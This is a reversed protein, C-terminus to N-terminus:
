TLAGLAERLAAEDGLSLVQVQPAIRKNLGALVKGPGCEVIHTAGAAVLAQVVEVWRVPQYLQRVLADRIAEPTSAVSVDANHIVPVSSAKVAIGDLQLKLRQAAPRMLSCHSPVSMPLLVARKAGMAKAAEMGREVAARTGAIVVQAPSNFNAPEAVDGGQSAQACAARVADDDLGLIAAMAGTGAPVAEQMAQARFRVLEVADGFALAGGAVLASYEGLSHGASLAPATGGALQWARAVAIGATLMAPQTNVTLNLEEAPGEAVLKWLDQGLRASAEAFTEKVGPLQAFSAMMGTSQSGQGPYVFAIKM